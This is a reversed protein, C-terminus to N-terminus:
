DPKNESKKDTAEANKETGKVTNEANVKPKAPTRKKTVTKAATTAKVASTSTATAPKKQVNRRPKAPISKEDLQESTNKEIHTDALKQIGQEVKEVPNSVVDEENPKEKVEVQTITKNEIQVDTKEPNSKQSSDALLLPNADSLLQTFQEYAELTDITQDPHQLLYQRAGSFVIQAQATADDVLKWSYVASIGMTALPTLRTLLNFQPLNNMWSLKFSGDENAIWKKLLEADNASGLLQQLQNVNHTQLVGAFTRIAAILAQKEAVTGLDIQKFIYEVVTHDKTQLEFGYARGTHYVSRLALALSTPVDIIAGVGGVAGTLTGQIAAIIKNQNALATSIRRSRETDQSLEALNKAGVEKLVSEVSTLESVFDNLKDFLFDSLKENLDPSIFSAVHNIKKSHKGLLKGTVNPLHERMMQQPNEYKKREFANKEQATGQVVSDAQPSQTLKSVTGPAVHQLVNLGTESLKKAVGFANSILGSSHKKNSNVM